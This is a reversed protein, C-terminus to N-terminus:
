TEDSDDYHREIVAFDMERLHLREIMNFAEVESAYQDAHAEDANLYLKGDGGNEDFRQVFMDHVFEYDPTPRTRKEGKVKIVYYKAV